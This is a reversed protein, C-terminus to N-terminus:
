SQLMSCQQLPTDSSQRVPEAQPVYGPGPAYHTVETVGIESRQSASGQEAATACICLHVAVAFFERPSAATAM